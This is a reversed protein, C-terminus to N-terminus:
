VKRVKWEQALKDSNDRDVPPPQPPVESADYRIQRTVLKGDVHTQVEIPMGSEIRTANPSTIERDRELRVVASEPGPDVMPPEDEITHMPDDPPVSRSPKRSRVTVTAKPMSPNALHLDVTIKYSARGYAIYNTFMGSKGLVEEVDMKIKTAL